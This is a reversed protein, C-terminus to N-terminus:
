LIRYKTMTRNNKYILYINRLILVSKVKYIM